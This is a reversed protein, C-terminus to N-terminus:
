SIDPEAQYESISHYLMLVPYIAPMDVFGHLIEVSNGLELEDLKKDLESTYYGRWVLYLKSKPEYKLFDNFAELLLPVGKDAFNDEGPVEM